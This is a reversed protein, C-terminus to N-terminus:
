SSIVSNKRLECYWSTIMPGKGSDDFVNRFGKHRAIALCDALAVRVNSTDVTYPHKVVSPSTVTHILSDPRIVVLVKARGFLLVPKVWFMFTSVVDASYEEGSSDVYSFPLVLRHGVRAMLESYKWVDYDVHDEQQWSDLLRMGWARNENMDSDLAIMMKGFGVM